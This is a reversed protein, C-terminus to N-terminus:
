ILNSNGSFINMTQLRIFSCVQNSHGDMLHPSSMGHSLDYNSLINKLVSSINREYLTKFAVVSGSSVKVLMGLLGQCVFSDSFLKSLFNVWFFM